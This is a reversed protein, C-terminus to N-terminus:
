KFGSHYISTYSRQVKEVVDRGGKDKKKVPACSLVRMDCM